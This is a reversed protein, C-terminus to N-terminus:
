VPLLDDRVRVRKPTRIRLTFKTALMNHEDFDLVTGDLLSLSRPDM